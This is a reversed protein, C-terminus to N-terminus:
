ARIFGSSNVSGSNREKKFINTIKGNQKSAQKEVSRLHARNGLFLSLAHISAKDTEM